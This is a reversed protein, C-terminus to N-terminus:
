FGRCCRCWAGLVPVLEELRQSLQSRASSGGAAAASGGAAEWGAASGCRFPLLAGAAGAVGAGPGLYLCWNKWVGLM